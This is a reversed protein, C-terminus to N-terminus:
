AARKMLLIERLATSWLREDEDPFVADIRAVRLREPPQSGWSLRRIKMWDKETTVIFDTGAMKAARELDAESYPHHDTLRLSRVRLGRQSLAREFAAPRGLASMALVPADALDDAARGDPREIRARFGCTVLRLAGKEHARRRIRELREASVLDRRTIVVLGARRLASVPERLRGAPLLLGGGWPDTADVTVIDLDRAVDWHQFGDDLILCDALRGRLLAEANQRRNRGVALAAGPVRLATLAAEDNLRDGAEPRAAEGAPFIGTPTEGRGFGLYGRAVIGPRRGAAILDDALRIVLPTKGTGGVTLNGVSFVPLEFREATRRRRARDLLLGAYYLPVLPLLLPAAFPRLRSRDM